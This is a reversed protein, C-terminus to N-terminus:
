MLIYQYFKKARKKKIGNSYEISERLSVSYTQGTSWDRGNYTYEDDSFCDM